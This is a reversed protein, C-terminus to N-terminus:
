AYGLVGLVAGCAFFLPMALLVGLAVSRTIMHQMM